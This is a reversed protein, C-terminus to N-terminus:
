TNKGSSGCRCCGKAAVGGVCSCTGHVHRTLSGERLHNDSLRVVMAWKHATSLRVFEVIDEEDLNESIWKGAVCM